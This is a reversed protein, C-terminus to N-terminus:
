ATIVYLSYPTSNGQVQAKSSAGSNLRLKITYSTGVVFNVADSPWATLPGTDMSQPQIETASATTNRMSTRQVANDTSRCITLTILKIAAQDQVTVVPTLVFRVPRGDYTFTVSMTPVDEVTAATTMTFASSSSASGLIRGSGVALWTGPTGAVFCVWEQGTNDFVSDYQLFTGDGAVPPGAHNLIGLFKIPSVNNIGARVQSSQGLFTLLRDDVSGSLLGQNGLFTSWLDNLSKSTM